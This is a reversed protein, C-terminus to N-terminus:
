CVFTVFNYLKVIFANNIYFITVLWFNLTINWKTSNKPNWAQSIADLYVQSFQEQAQAGKM